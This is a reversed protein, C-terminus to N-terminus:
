IIGRNIILIFLYLFLQILLKENEFLILFITLYILNYKNNIDNNM